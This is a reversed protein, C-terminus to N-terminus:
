IELIAIENNKYLNVNKIHSHGIYLYLMITTVSAKLVRVRVPKTVPM